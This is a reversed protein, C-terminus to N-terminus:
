VTLSLWFRIWRRATRNKELNLMQGANSASIWNALGAEMLTHAPWIRWYVDDFYHPMVTHIAMKDLWSQVVVWLTAGISGSSVQYLQFLPNPCVSILYKYLIILCVFGWILPELLYHELSWRRSLLCVYDGGPVLCGYRGSQFTSSVATQKWQWSARMSSTRM